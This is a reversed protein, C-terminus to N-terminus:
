AQMIFFILSAAWIEDYKECFSFDWKLNSRTKELRPRVFFYKM